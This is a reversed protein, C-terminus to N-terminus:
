DARHALEFMARALFEGHPAASAVELRQQYVVLTIVESVDITTGMGPDREVPHVILEEARVITVEHAGSM